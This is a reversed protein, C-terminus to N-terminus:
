QEVLQALPANKENQQAATEVAREGNYRRFLLIDVSKSFFDKSIKKGPTEHNKATAGKPIGADAAAQEQSFCVAASTDEKPLNNKIRTRKPRPQVPAWSNAL